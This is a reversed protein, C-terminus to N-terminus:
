YYEEGNRIEKTPGGRSARATWALPQRTQILQEIVISPEHHTLVSVPVPCSSGALPVGLQFLDPRCDPNLCTHPLRAWVRGFRKGM